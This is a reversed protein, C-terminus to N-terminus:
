LRRWGPPLAPRNPDPAAPGPAPAPAAADPAPDGAGSRAAAPAPPAAADAAGADGDGDDEDGDYDEGDDDEDCDEEDYDEEDDDEDADDEEDDAEDDTADDPAADARAGRAPPAATASGFGAWDPEPEVVRPAPEPPGGLDARTLPADFPSPAPPAFDAPSLRDPPPTEADPIPPLVADAALDAAPGDVACAAFWADRAVADHTRRVCLRARYPAEVAALEAESLERSYGPAGYDGSEDGDFGPAPPFRTRWEELTDDWWVPPRDAGTEAGPGADAAPAPVPAADARLKRLKPHEWTDAAPPPALAVLGAAEARAWQAATWEARAAPDLDALGADAARRDRLWADARALARVPALDDPAPAADANGLRRALFLGARAPGGEREVLELFAEFDTAVLRAAAHDTAGAAGEALRDLRALMHMALRNDHRQRTVVAGDPRTVTECTGHVARELLQDALHDRALLLAAQWGLAFAAGRASRRLAYASTVSMGIAACAYTITHGEALLQLFRKQRAATWGDARAASPAHDVLMDLSFAGGGDIPAPRIDASANM